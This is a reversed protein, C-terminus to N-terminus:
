SIGDLISKISEKGKLPKLETTIRIGNTLLVLFLILLMLGLLAILLDDQTSDLACQKDSDCVCHADLQDHNVVLKKNIPCETNFSKKNQLKLLWLNKLKENENSSQCYLENSLQQLNYYNSLTNGLIYKFVTRNGIRDQNYDESCKKDQKCWLFLQDVMHNEDSPETHLECNFCFCITVINLLIVIFKITM